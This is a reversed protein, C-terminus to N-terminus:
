RAALGRLGSRRLTARYLRRVAADERAAVFARGLLWFVTSRRVKHRRQPDLPNGAWTLGLTRLSLLLALLESVRLSPHRAPVQLVHGLGAQGDAVAQSVLSHYLPRLRRWSGPNLLQEPVLDCVALESKPLYCRGNRLDNAVDRLVNTLQLARGLRRGQEGWAAPDVRRLAPLRAAHIASWFEGVCGAVQYCYHLLEERTDFWALEEPRDGPFRTLDDHQGATITRLVRRVQAQELPPLAALADLCVHLEQLLAREGPEVVDDGAWRHLSRLLDERGSDDGQYVTDLEELLRLREERRVIRTDAVTDTARALLYALAVTWRTEAPLLRLNVYFSRSVEALIERLPLQASPGAV